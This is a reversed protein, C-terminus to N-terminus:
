GVFGLATPNAFRRNYDGVHPTKPSFYLKEFLEPSITVGTTTRHIHGKEEDDIIGNRDHQTTMKAKTLSLTVKSSESRNCHSWRAKTSHEQRSGIDIM